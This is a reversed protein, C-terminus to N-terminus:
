AYTYVYLCVCLSAYICFVRACVTVYIYTHYVGYLVQVLVMNHTTMAMTGMCLSVVGYLTPLLRRCAGNHPTALQSLIVYTALVIADKNHHALAFPSWLPMYQHTHHHGGKTDTNLQM